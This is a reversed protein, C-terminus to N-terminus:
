VGCKQLVGIINSRYRDAWQAQLLRIIALELIAVPGLQATTATSNLLEVRECSLGARDVLSRIEAASNFKYVVPFVDDEKRGELVWILKNKLRQPVARATWFAYNRSNITHFLFIGGPKLVRRIQALAAAPDQIHEMVMNASVIDFTNSAFPLREIDGVLRNNLSRHRRLGEASYDMGVALRCSSVLEREEGASSSMYEPFIQRGCGLELWAGGARVASKLVEKYRYQSDRLGPVIMRELKWYFRLALQRYGMPTQAAVIVAESSCRPHWTRHSRHREVSVKTFERQAGSAQVQQPRGGRPTDPCDKIMAKRRGAPLIQHQLTSVDTGVELRDREAVDVPQKVSADGQRGIRKRDRDIVTVAVEELDSVRYEARV